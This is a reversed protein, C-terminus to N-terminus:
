GELAEVTTLRDEAQHVTGLRLFTRQDRTNLLDAVAVLGLGESM